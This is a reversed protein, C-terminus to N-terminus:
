FDSHLFSFMVVVACSSCFGCCYVSLFRLLKIGKFRYGCLLVLFSRMHSLVFQLELCRRRWPCTCWSFIIQRLFLMSTRHWSQYLSPSTLMFALWACRTCTRPSNHSGVSASQRWSASSLRPACISARSPWRTVWRSSKRKSPQLDVARSFLCSLSM